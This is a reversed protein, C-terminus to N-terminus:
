RDHHHPVMQMAKLRSGHLTPRQLSQSILTRVARNVSTILEQVQDRFDTSVDVMAEALLRQPDLYRRCREIDGLAFGLQRFFPFLDRATGLLDQRFFCSKFSNFISKLEARQTPNLFELMFGTLRGDIADLESRVNEAIEWNAIRHFWTTAADGISVTTISDLLNLSRWSHGFQTDFWLQKSARALGAMHLFRGTITHTGWSYLLPGAAPGRGACLGNEPNADADTGSPKGLIAAPADFEVDDGCVAKMDGVVSNEHGCDVRLRFHLRLACADEQDRFARSGFIEVLAEPQFALTPIVMTCAHGPYDPDSNGRNESGDAWLTRNHLESLRLTRIKRAFSHIAILQRPEKPLALIVLDPSSLSGFCATEPLCSENGAACEILSILNAIARLVNGPGKGFEYATPSLTIRILVLMPHSAPAPNRISELFRDSPQPDLFPILVLRRSDEWSYQAVINAHVQPIDDLSPFLQFKLFDFEGAVSWQGRVRESSNGV